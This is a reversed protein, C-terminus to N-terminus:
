SADMIRSPRFGRWQNTAVRLFHALPLQWTHEAATARRLLYGLGHTRYVRGGAALVARLLHADVSRPLPQFGGVERFVARDIMITGGAVHDTWVESRYDTRRITLQLPELYFFEATTGVVEAGSYARAMLLDAVHESGYWDDDDWKLIVDGTARAAAANLAEGFSSGADVEIVQVPYPLGDTALRGGGHLAVVVELDVGRQRGIQALAGAVLHPRRSCLVVSVPTAARGARGRLAQRRLRVSHEERRLATLPAGASDTEGTDEPEAAILRVLPDDAAWGPPPGSYLPVGAAALAVLAELPVPREPWHVRLGALPRLAPIDGPVARDPHDPLHWRGATWVLDAIGETPAQVFGIPSPTVGSGVDRDITPPM